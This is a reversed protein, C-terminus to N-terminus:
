VTASLEGFCLWKRYELKLADYQPLPMEALFAAAAFRKSIDIRKRAYAWSAFRHFESQEHKTLHITM